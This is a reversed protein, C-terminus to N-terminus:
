VDLVLPLPDVVSRLSRGAAVGFRSGSASLTAAAVLIEARSGSFWVVESRRVESVCCLTGAWRSGPAFVALRWRGSVSSRYM